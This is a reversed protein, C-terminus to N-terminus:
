NDGRGRLLWGDLNMVQVQRYKSSDSRELKHYGDRGLRRSSKGHIKKLIFIKSPFHKLLSHSVLIHSHTIIHGQFFKFMRSNIIKELYTKM